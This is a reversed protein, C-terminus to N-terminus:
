KANRKRLALGATGFMMTFLLLLGLDSLTPIVRPALVPVQVTASSSVPPVPVNPPPSITATNTASGSTLTFTGSLTFTVSGGSPLTAITIGSGQLNAVTVAAPAPCAAGGSATTCTVGSITLGPVAPDTFVSNNAASPGNNTVVVTFNVPNGTDVIQSPPSKVITFTFLNVTDTDTGCNNSSNSDNTGQPTAVCGTNTVSGSTATVNATVTITVSGGSPLTPIILGAGELAAVTLV